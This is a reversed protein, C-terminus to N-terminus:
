PALWTKFDVRAIQKGNHDILVVHGSRGWHRGSQVQMDLSVTLTTGRPPQFQWIVNEDDGSESEPNPAVANRNFLDLYDRSIALAVNGTFGRPEEVTIEFPVDLGARAVHAYHVSLTATGDAAQARSTTSRVGLLGLLAAVVVVALLALFARRVWAGRAGVSTDPALEANPAREVEREDLITMAIEASIGPKAGGPFTACSL